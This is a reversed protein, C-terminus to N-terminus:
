HLKEQEEALKEEEIIRVKEQKLFAEEREIDEKTIHKSHTEMFNNSLTSASKAMDEVQKAMQKAEKDSEAMM